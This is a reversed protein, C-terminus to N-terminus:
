QSIISNYCKTAVPLFSKRHRKQPQRQHDQGVYLIMASVSIWVSPQSKFGFHIADQIIQIRRLIYVNLYYIYNIEDDCVDGGPKQSCADRVFYLIYVIYADPKVREWTKQGTKSLDPVWRLTGGSLTSRWTATHSSSPTTRVRPWASTTSCWSIRKM